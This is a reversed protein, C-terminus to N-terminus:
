LVISDKLRQKQHDLTQKPVNHINEGNHRHELVLSVVKYTYKEAIKLYPSLEKETTLTNTVLIVPIEFFCANDVKEICTKHAIGLKSAEFKYKGDSMFYDDASAIICRTNGAKCIEEIQNAFTSKGCGSSGRILYITKEM